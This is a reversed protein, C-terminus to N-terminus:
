KQKKPTFIPWRKVEMSDSIASLASETLGLSTDKSRSKVAAKERGKAGGVDVSPNSMPNVEPGAIAESNGISSVQPSAGDGDADVAPNSVSNAQSKGAGQVDLGARARGAARHQNLQQM